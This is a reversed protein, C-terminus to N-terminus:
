KKFWYHNLKSCLPWYGFKLRYLWSTRHHWRRNGDGMNWM